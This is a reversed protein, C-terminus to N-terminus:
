HSVITPVLGGRRKTTPNTTFVVAKRRGYGAKRNRTQRRIRKNQEDLRRKKEEPDLTNWYIQFSTALKCVEKRPKCATKKAKKLGTGDITQVMSSVERKQRRSQFGYVGNGAIETLSDEKFRKGKVVRECFERGVRHLLSFQLAPNELKNYIRPM